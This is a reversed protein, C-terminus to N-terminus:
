IVEFAEFEPKAMAEAFTDYDWPWTIPVGHADLYWSTCGSGFITAKAATIRRSEYDALAASTAAIGRANGDIVRAVLQEIYRWQREAIDILSFNGVPSTPGNLMFFNPFDPISIAFYGNCRDKWAAELTAGRRGEVSIPRVFRDSHFGTCLAILDLDHVAGDRDRIGGPLVRDIGCTITLLNPMQAAAYYDPSYILRKCAARYNPRLKERLVPDHVNQELNMLCYGEIEKMMPSEIDVVGKTFRQINGFYVPDYRIADIAERSQRFVAKEAETYAFQVVPMIWQPSRQFHVVEIGRKALATVLQVGTSGNGIVGIKKSELPVSHDWRASHFKIGAFDDLGPIDPIKPHHLVGTAAIIFEAEAIRGDRTEVQWNGPADRWTCRIIEANFNIIPMLDHDAVVKEFYAQVEPGPAYYGSWEPNPAFEYTYAHAPVDCSLGPYSNDRWTGGIRGAKEYVSVATHGAARLKIAALIGSMGAGLIIFRPQPQSM